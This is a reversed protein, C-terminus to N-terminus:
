EQAKQALVESIQEQFAALEDTKVQQKTTAAEQMKTLLQVMPGSLAVSKQHSTSAKAAIEKALM